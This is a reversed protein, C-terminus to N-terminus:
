RGRELSGSQLATELDLSFLYRDASYLYSTNLEDTDWDYDDDVPTSIKTNDLNDSFPIASNNPAIKNTNFTSNM